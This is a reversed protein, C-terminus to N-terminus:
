LKKFGVIDVFYKVGDLEVIDSVSLSHGKYDKPIDVNFKTFIEELTVEVDGRIMDFKGEYILDYEELPISGQHKLIFDYGRYKVDSSIPLQLIRINMKEMLKYSEYAERVCKMYDGESGCEFIGEVINDKYDFTSWVTEWMWTTKDEDQQIKITPYITDCPLVEAYYEIPDEIGPLTVEPDGPWLSHAVEKCAEADEVLNRKDFVVKTDYGFRTERTIVFAKM